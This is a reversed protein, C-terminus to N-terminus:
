GRGVPAGEYLKRVFDLAFIWVPDRGESELAPLMEIPATVGPEIMGLCFEKEGPSVPARNAPYAGLDIPEGNFSVRSAGACNPISSASAPSGAMM